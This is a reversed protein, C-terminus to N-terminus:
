RIRIVKCRRAIINYVPMEKPIWIVSGLHRLVSADGAFAGAPGLNAVETPIEAAVLWGVAPDVESCQVSCKVTSASVCGPTESFGDWVRFLALNISQRLTRVDTRQFFYKKHKPNVNYIYPKCFIRTPASTEKGRVVRGGVVAGPLASREM